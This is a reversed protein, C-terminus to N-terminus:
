LVDVVVISMVYMNKATSAVKNQFGHTHTCKKTHTCTNETQMKILLGSFLYQQHNFSALIVFNVALLWWYKEYNNKLDYM